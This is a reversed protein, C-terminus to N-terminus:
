ALGVYKCGFNHPFTSADEVTEAEAKTEAEEELDNEGTNFMAGSGEDVKGWIVYCYDKPGVSTLSVIGARDPVDAKTISNLKSILDSREKEDREDLPFGDDDDPDVGEEGLYGDEEDGDVGYVGGDVEQLNGDEDVDGDGNMTLGGTCVLRPLQDEEKQLAM